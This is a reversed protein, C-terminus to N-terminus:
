KWYATGRGMGHVYNAQKKNNENQEGQKSDKNKNPKNQKSNKKVNTKNSQCRVM